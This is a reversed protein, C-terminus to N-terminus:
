SGEVNQLFWTGALLQSAALNNPDNQLSMDVVTGQSDVTWTLEETGDGTQSFVGEGSGNSGSWTFECGEGVTLTPCSTIDGSAQSVSTPSIIGATGNAVDSVYQGPADPASDWQWATLAGSDTGDPSDIYCSVGSNPAAGDFWNPYALGNSCNFASSPIVSTLNGLPGPQATTQAPPQPPPPTPGPQPGCAAVAALVVGAAVVLPFRLKRTM